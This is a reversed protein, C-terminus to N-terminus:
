RVYMVRMGLLQGGPRDLIRITCQRAVFGDPLPASGRVIQQAAISVPVPELAVTTEPGRASEGTVVLQMVGALPKGRASERSLAVEYSLSRGQRTMRAARVELDGGRPDPPLSAAVFAVDERLREIAQRSAAIEDTLRKTDATAADLRGTTDELDAQLRQREADTQEFLARLKASETASLRPPLHREQVYVVGAAGAATGLLLLLLWRPVRRRARRGGYTDIVVPKSRRFM